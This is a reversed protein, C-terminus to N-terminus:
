PQPYRTPTNSQSDSITKVGRETEVLKRVLRGEGNYQYYMGFHQDDFTALLRLSQPDYVYATMQADTPQIRVDDLWTGIAASGESRFIVYVQSGIQPPINVLGEYLEWQGTRAIKQLQVQTGGSTTSSIWASLQADVFATGDATRVWTMLRLATGVNLPTISIPKSVYLDGPGTRHVSSAGAHGVAAMSIGNVTGCEECGNSGGSEFSEFQVGELRSNKAVLYPLMRQYGYKACSPRDMADLEEISSGDPSYQTITNTRVWLDQNNAVPDRWNFYKMTYMGQEYNYVGPDLPAMYAHQKIPRWIGRVGTEFDNSGTPWAQIDFDNPTYPWQDDYEAANCAVVREIGIDPYIPDCFNLCAIAKPYCSNGDPWFILGGDVPDIGFSGAPGLNEPGCVIGEMTSTTLQLIGATNSSLIISRPACPFGDPFVSTDDTNLPTSNGPAPIYSTLIQAIEIRDDWITNNVSATPGYITYAGAADRLKNDCGSRLIQLRTLNGTALDNSNYIRILNLDSGDIGLLHYEFVQTGQVFRMLDGTCMANLADCVSGSYGPSASIRVVADNGSVEIAEICLGNTCNGNLLYKEGKAIQGMDAYVMSAPINVSTYIGPDNDALLPEDDTEILDPTFGDHTRTVVPDGTLPDFALNESVHYIGDKYVKTRKVVAPYNVVKNITHSSIRTLMHTITPMAGASLLPPFVGIDAGVELSGDDMEDRIQRTEITVDMEQGLPLQDFADGPLWDKTLVPLTAKSEFYEYETSSVTTTYVNSYGLFRRHDGSHSSERKPRGHMGPIHVTYGQSAYTSNRIINVIAGTGPFYDKKTLLDSDTVEIPHDKYTHFEQMTFAPATKGNLVSNELTSSHINLAIVRSYGVSAGPYISEALPGELEKKDRGAVVRNFFSQKLRELPRVLVNEERLGGPEFTAVGSTILRGTEDTTRYVYETGFVRAYETAMPDAAPDVMLLRKVRIGGGLKRQGVPVRFWSYEPCITACKSEDNVADLFEWAAPILDEFSQIAEAAASEDDDGWNVHTEPFPDNDPGCEALFEKGSKQTKYLEKCVHHPLTHSLNKLKISVTKATNDYDVAEVPAYGTIFESSRVEPNCDDGQLKYMIKFYIPRKTTEFNYYSWIQNAIDSAQFGGQIGPPDLLDSVDLVFTQADGVTQDSKLPVMAHAKEDQVYAYDDQEYQIHIEGGSPLIIRKLQWAAPDFDPDPTQDLWTLFDNSRLDGDKCYNGWADTDLCYGSPDNNVEAYEPELINQAMSLSKPGGPSYPWPYEHDLAYSYEFEYPALMAPVTGNYEFWVRKLTLRANGDGGGNPLGPWAEYTYEFHITKIPTSEGVAFLEIKKLKKLLPVGAVPSKGDLRDELHFRAYHSKTRVEDLYYIEKSGESFSIRDDHCESLEGRGYMYGKYPMRWHYVDDNYCHARYKLKTWGGLDDMSAGDNQRDIYDPDTISTLLYTTAYPANSESGAKFASADMDSGGYNKLYRNNHVSTSGVYHNYSLSKENLSRVPLGYNYRQGSENLISMEHIQHEHDDYDNLHDPITGTIIDSFPRREYRDSWPFASKLNYGIHSSRGPRVGGNVPTVNLDLQDHYQINQWGIMGGGNIHAWHDSTGGAHMIYGGMDGSMRLYNSEDDTNQTSASGWGQLTMEQWGGLNFDLSAGLSAGIDFEVGLQLMNSNSTTVAPKFVPAMRRHMRMSGVIGEGTAMFQDHDNFAPPLNLDRKNFTTANESHYDMIDDTGATHSYMYGFADRTMLADTEQYSYSGTVNGQFGVEVPLFPINAGVSFRYTQGSGSQMDLPFTGSNIAYGIYSSAIGGGATGVKQLNNNKKLKATNSAIRNIIEKKADDDTESKLAKKDDKIKGKLEKIKDNLLAAPNIALSFSTGEQTLQFGLSVVGNAAAVGAGIAYGFGRYNNYNLSASATVPIDWQFGEAGLYVGASATRNRDTKNYYKVSESGNWDDPVGNM